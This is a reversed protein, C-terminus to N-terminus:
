IFILQLVLVINEFMGSDTNEDHNKTAKKKRKGRGLSRESESTLFIEREKLAAKDYSDVFKIIIFCSYNINPLYRYM